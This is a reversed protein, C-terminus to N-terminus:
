SFDGIADVIDDVLGVGVVSLRRYSIMRGGVKVLKNHWLLQQGPADGAPPHRTDMGGGGSAPGPPIDGASKESSCM